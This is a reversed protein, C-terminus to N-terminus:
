EKIIKKFEITKGSKLKILYIGPTFNTTQVVTKELIVGSFVSQGLSNIIEFDVKQTDGELEITLENTVPNPYVKFNYPVNLIPNIGTFSGTKFTWVSADSVGGFSNGATDVLSQALLRLKKILSPISSKHLKSNLGKRYGQLKMLM